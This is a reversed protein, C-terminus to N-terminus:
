LSSLNSVEAIVTESSRDRRKSIQCPELVKTSAEVHKSTGDRGRNIPEGAKFFEHKGVVIQSTCDGIDEKVRCDECVQLFNVKEVVRKRTICCARRM